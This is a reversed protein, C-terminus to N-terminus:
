SKWMSTLSSMILSAFARLHRSSSRTSFGFLTVDILLLLLCHDRACRGGLRLVLLAQGLMGVDRHDIARLNREHVELRVVFREGIRALDRRQSFLWVFVASEHPLSHLSDVVSVPFSIM